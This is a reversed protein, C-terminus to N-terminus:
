LVCMPVYWLVILCNEDFTYVIIRAVQNTCCNEYSREVEHAYIGDKFTCACVYVCEHMCLSWACVCVCVGAFSIDNTITRCGSLYLLHVLCYYLLNLM